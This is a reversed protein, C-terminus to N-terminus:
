GDDMASIGMEMGLGFFPFGIGIGAGIDEGIREGDASGLIVPVPMSQLEADGM